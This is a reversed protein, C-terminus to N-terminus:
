VIRSGKPKAAAKDFLSPAAAKLFGVHLRWVEARLKIRTSIEEVDEEVLNRVVHPKSPDPIIKICGWMEALLPEADEWKLGALAKIGVEAMAAMGMHEFGDPVEVGASMLALLARMAWSEAQSAPMETLVFLKGRDRGEDNVTYNLTARAM